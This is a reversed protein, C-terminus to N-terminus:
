NSTEVVKRKTERVSAGSDAVDQALQEQDEAPAQSLLKAHSFSLQGDLVLDQVKNPLNLLALRESVYAPSKNLLRAVEKQTYERQCSISVPM